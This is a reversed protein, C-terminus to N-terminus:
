THIRFGNRITTQVRATGTFSGYSPRNASSLPRQSVPNSDHQGPRALKPHNPGVAPRDFSRQRLLKPCTREHDPRPPDHRAPGTSPRGPRLLAGQGTKASMGHSRTTSSYCKRCHDFATKKKTVRKRARGADCVPCIVRLHAFYDQRKRITHGPPIPSDVTRGPVREHFGWRSPSKKM